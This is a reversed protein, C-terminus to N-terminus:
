QACGLYHGWDELLRDAQKPKTLGFTAIPALM